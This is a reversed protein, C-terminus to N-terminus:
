NKGLIAIFKRIDKAHLVVVIAGTVVLGIMITMLSSQDTYTRLAWLAGCISVLLVIGDILVTNFYDRLRIKLQRFGYVMITGGVGIGAPVTMLAAATPLNWGFFSAIILGAFVLSVTYIFSYKAIQGHLDMGILVRLLAGQSSSILSGGALIATVAWLAYDPGMWVDVTLDGLVILFALPPVCLLLGIRSSQLAFEQLEEFKEQSQLSGATPVLVNSYKSVLVNVTRVLALPRSLIALAAPGLFAVVFINVTQITVFGPLGLLINKAGFRFVKIADEKNVLSRHLSLEPCVRRALKYRVLETLLTGVFYVISMGTLGYGADLALLMVVCIIAYSGSNLANYYDWRHCGTLVGRWADFAMQVALSAGLYVVVWMTTKSQDELQEEFMLPITWAIILVAILVAMAIALQIAVVTSVTRNLAAHDAAARYRAVFRNVSSGIGVMALSLYNVFSWCFDWIGLMAQGVEDSIARPLIFGFIIFVFHGLYSAGVNRAMRGRGTLDESKANM